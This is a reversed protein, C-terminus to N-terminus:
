AEDTGREPPDLVWTGRVVTAKVGCCRGVARLPQGEATLLIQWEHGLEDCTMPPPLEDKM